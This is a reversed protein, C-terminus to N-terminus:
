LVSLSDCARIFPVYLALSLANMSNDGFLRSTFHRKSCDLPACVVRNTRQHSVNCIARTPKLRGCSIRKPAYHPKHQPIRITLPQSEMILAIASENHASVVIATDARV